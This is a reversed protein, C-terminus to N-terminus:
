KKRVVSKVIMRTIKKDAVYSDGDFSKVSADLVFACLLTQEVGVVLPISSTIKLVQRNEFEEDGDNVYELFWAKGIFQGTPFGKDDLVPECTTPKVVVPFYLNKTTAKTKPASPTAPATDPTKAESM